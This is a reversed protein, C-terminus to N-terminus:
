KGPVAPPEDLPVPENAKNNAIIIATATGGAVAAIATWFWWRSFVSKKRNLIRDELKKAVDDMVRYVEAPTTGSRVIEGTMVKGTNADFMRVNIQLDNELVSFNGVILAQAGVATGIQIATREDIIGLQSLGAENLVELLRAREVIEIRGSQSLRTTLNERMIDTMGNYKTWGSLNVFDSVAVKPRPKQQAQAMPIAVTELLLVMALLLSMHKRM